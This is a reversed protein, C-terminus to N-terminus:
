VRENYCRECLKFIEDLLYKDSDSIVWKKHGRLTIAIVHKKIEKFSLNSQICLLRVISLPIGHLHNKYIWSDVTDRPLKLNTILYKRLFTNHYNFLRKVFSRDVFYIYFEVHKMAREFKELKRRCLDLVGLHYLKLIQRLSTIIIRGRSAGQFSKKGVIGLKKLCYLYFDALDQETIWNFHIMISNPIKNRLCISGEAAFVGKLYSAILFEDSKALSRVQRLVNDFICRFIGNDYYLEMFTSKNEKLNSRRACQTISLGLSDCWENLEKESGYFNFRWANRSIGFIEFFALEFHLNEVDKSGIRVSYRAGISNSKTGDGDYYGIGTLLSGNLIIEHPLLSLFVTKGRIYYIGIFNHPVRMGLMPIYQGEKVINLKYDSQNYLPILQITDIINTRM